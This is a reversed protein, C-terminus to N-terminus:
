TAALLAELEAIRRKYENREVMEATNEAPTICQLHKPAVCRKTACTHHIAQGRHLKVGHHLEYSMRHALRGGDKGASYGYGNDGVAGM